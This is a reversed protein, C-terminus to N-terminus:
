LAHPAARASSIRNHLLLWAGHKKPVAIFAHVGARQWTFIHAHACRHCWLRLLAV